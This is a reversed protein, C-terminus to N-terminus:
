TTSTCPSAFRRATRAGRRKRSGGAGQEDSYGGFGALPPANMPGIRIRSARAHDLDTRGAAAPIRRSQRQRRPAHPVRRVHRRRRGSLPRARGLRGARSRARARRRRPSRVKEAFVAAFRFVGVAMVVVSCCIM